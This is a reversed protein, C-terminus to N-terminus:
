RLSALADEIYITERMQNRDKEGLLM